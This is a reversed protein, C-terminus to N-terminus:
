WDKDPQTDQPKRQMQKQLQREQNRLENFKQDMMQKNLPKQNQQPKPQDKKQQQKNQQNKQQQQRKENLAKQLNDRIDNDAPDISLAQKFANIADDLNQQKVLALGKNYLSKAKLATDASRNVIDDYQKTADAANKLRLQTNALNFKAIVNGPEIDLAKQYEEEAKKYDSNRYADNGRQVHSNGQQSFGAVILLCFCAMLLFKM